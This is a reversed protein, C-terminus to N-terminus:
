SCKANCYLSIPIFYDTFKNGIQCNQRAYYEMFYFAMMMGNGMACGALIIINGATQSLRSTLLILMGGIIIFFFIMVPYVFRLGFSLIVEHIIASTLFVAITALKKSGNTLYYIDRFIYEYLYDHVVINWHRYYATYNGSTWWDRYFMRDAFRMIEAGINMWAHLICYFGTLMTILGPMMMGFASAVMTGATIPKNNKCWDIFLPRMNREHIQSLLFIIAFVELLRAVVFNWRIKKTRPYSDRYILTPAFLFYLYNKFPPLPLPKWEINDHNKRNFENEKDLIEIKEKGIFQKVANTRVFAHMKMMFRTAEMLVCCSSILPLDLKPCLVCATYFFIHLFSIFFVLCSYNWLRELSENFRLTIRIKSWIQFAFYIGITSIQLGLWVLFAIHLNGFGTIITEFGFKIKGDIFYDHMGNNLFVFIFIVFFFNYISRMHKIELLATLYSERPMFIKEPFKFKPKKVDTGQYKVNNTNTTSNNNENDHNIIKRNSWIQAYQETAFNKFDNTQIEQRQIEKILGEVMDDMKNQVDKIVNNQFTELKKKVLHLTIDQTMKLEKERIENPTSYNGTVEPNM